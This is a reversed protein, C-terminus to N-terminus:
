DDLHDYLIPGPVTLGTAGAVFIACRTLSRRPGDRFATVVLDTGAWM